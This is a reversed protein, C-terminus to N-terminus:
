YQEQKLVFPSSKKGNVIINVQSTQNFFNNYKHLKRRSRNKNQTKNSIVQIKHLIRKADISGTM